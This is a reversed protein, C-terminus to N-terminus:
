IFILNTIFIATFFYNSGYSNPWIAHRIIRAILFVLKEIQDYFSQGYSDNVLYNSFALGLFQDFWLFLRGDIILYLFYLGLIICFNIIIKNEYKFEKNLFFNIFILILIFAM